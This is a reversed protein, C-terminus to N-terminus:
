QNDAHSKEKGSKLEKIENKLREEIWWGAEDAADVPVVCDGNAIHKHALLLEVRKELVEIRRELKEIAKVNLDRM